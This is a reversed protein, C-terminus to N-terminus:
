LLGVPLVDYGSLLHSVALLNKSGLRSIRERPFDFRPSPPAVRFDKVVLSSAREGKQLFPFSSGFPPEFFRGSV